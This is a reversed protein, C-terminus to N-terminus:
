APVAMACDPCGRRYRAPHDPCRERGGAKRDPGAQGPIPVRSRDAHKVLDKWEPHAAMERARDAVWDVPLGATLLEVAQARLAVRSGNLLPRGLAQVYAAVM